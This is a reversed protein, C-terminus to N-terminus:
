KDYIQKNIEILIKELNPYHQDFIEDIKTVKEPELQTKQMYSNPDIKRMLSDVVHEKIWHGDPNASDFGYKRILHHIANHIAEHLLIGGWHEISSKSFVFIIKNPPNFKGGVGYNTLRVEYNGPMIYGAENFFRRLKSIVLPWIELIKEKAEEYDKENFEKNILALLEEKSPMNEDEIRLGKPLKPNYKNKIYFVRKKPTLTAQIEELDIQPSYEFDLKPLQELNEIPM